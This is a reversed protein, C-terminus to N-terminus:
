QGASLGGRYWWLGPSDVLRLADWGLSCCGGLGAMFCVRPSRILILLIHRIINAVQKPDKIRTM